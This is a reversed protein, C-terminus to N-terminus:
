NERRNSFFAGPLKGFYLFISLLKGTFDVFDVNVSGALPQYM